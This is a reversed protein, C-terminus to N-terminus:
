GDEESTDGSNWVVEGKLHLTCHDLCYCPLDGPKELLLSPDLLCNVCHNSATTYRQCLHHLSLKYKSARYLGAVRNVKTIKLYAFKRIHLRRFLWHDTVQKFGPFALLLCGIERPSLFLLVKVLTNFKLQGLVGLDGTLRVHIRDKWFSIHDDCFCAAKLPHERILLPNVVCTCCGYMPFACGCVHRYGWCTIRCKWCALEDRPFNLTCCPNKREIWRRHLVENRKWFKILTPFASLLRALDLPELYLIIEERLCVPLRELICQVAFHFFFFFVYALM